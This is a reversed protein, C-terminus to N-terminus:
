IKNSYEKEEKKQSHLVNKVRYKQYKRSSIVKRLSTRIAPISFLIFALTTCSLLENMCKRTASVSFFPVSNIWEHFNWRVLLGYKATGTSNSQLFLYFACLRPIHFLQFAIYSYKLATLLSPVNFSDESISSSLKSIRVASQFDSEVKSFSLRQAASTPDCNRPSYFWDRAIMYSCWLCLIHGEHVCISPVIRKLHEM